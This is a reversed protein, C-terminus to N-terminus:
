MLMCSVAQGGAEGASLGVEKKWTMGKLVKQSQRSLSSSRQFTLRGGEWIAPKRFLLVKGKGGDSTM